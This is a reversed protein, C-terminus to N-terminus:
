LLNNLNIIVQEFKNILHQKSFIINRDRSLAMCSYVVPRQKKCFGVVNM